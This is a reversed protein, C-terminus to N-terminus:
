ALLEQLETEADLQDVWVSPEGTFAAATHMPQAFYGRLQAAAQLQRRVAEASAVGPMTSTSLVPDLAPFIGAVFQEISLVLQTDLTLEAYDPRPGSRPTTTVVVITVSGGGATLGASAALDGNRETDLVRRDLVLLVDSGTDAIGAALNTGSRVATVADDGPGTLIVAHRDHAVSEDSVLIGFDPFGDEATARPGVAVCATESETRGLRYLLELAIVLHGTGVAGTIEITGGRVVPAMADIIKLGTPTGTMPPRQLAIVDTINIDAAAHIRDLYTLLSTVPPEKTEHLQELAPRLRRRADHLRKRVAAHNIDLLHALDDISWGAFYRLELLRRDPDSLTSLSARVFRILENKEAALDPQDEPSIAPEATDGTPTRRHLRDAQKRVTVRLWGPFAQPVRLQGLNRVVEAFAEQVVDELDVESDVLRTATAIALPTFRRLLEARAPEDGIRAKEVLEIWDPVDMAVM